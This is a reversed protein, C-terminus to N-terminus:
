GATRSHWREVVDLWGRLEAATPPLEYAHHHCARSLAHWTGSLAAVTAPDKREYDALCIWQARANCEHLALGRDRWYQDLAAELAQRILLAAARPWTGALEGRRPRALLDRATDLLFRVESAGSV